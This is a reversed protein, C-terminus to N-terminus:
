YVGMAARDCASRSGLPGVAKRPRGGTGKFRTAPHAEIAGPVM